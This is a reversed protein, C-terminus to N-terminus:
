WESVDVTDIQGDNPPGEVIGIITVEDSVVKYKSTPNTKYM